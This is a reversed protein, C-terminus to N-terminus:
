TWGGEKSWLGRKILEKEVLNDIIDQYLRYSYAEDDIIHWGEKKCWIMYDLGEYGPNTLFIDPKDQINNEFYDYIFDVVKKEPKHTDFYAKIKVEQEKQSNMCNVLYDTYSMEHKRKRIELYNKDVMGAQFQAEARNFDQETRKNWEKERTEFDEVVETNPEKLVWESKDASLQWSGEKNRENYNNFYNNYSNDKAMKEISRVLKGLRKM